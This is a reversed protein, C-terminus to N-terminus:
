SHVEEGKLVRINKLFTGIVWIGFCSIVIFFAYVGISDLIYALKKSIPIVGMEGLKGPLAFIRNVFGALVALGLSNRIGLINMVIFAVVMIMGVIALQGRIFTNWIRGMVRGLRHLDDMHGPLEINALLDPVQGADSVIFYSVM